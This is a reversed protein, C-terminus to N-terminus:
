CYTHFRHKTAMKSVIGRLCALAYQPDTFFHTLTEKNYHECCYLILLFTGLGGLGLFLQKYFSRSAVREEKHKPADNPKPQEQKKQENTVLGPPTEIVSRVEKKDNSGSSPILDQQAQDSTSTLKHRKDTEQSIQNNPTSSPIIQLNKAKDSAIQQPQQPIQNPISTATPDTIKIIEPANAIADVTSLFPKISGHQKPVMTKSYVTSYFNFASVNHSALAILIIQLNSIGGMPIDSYYTFTSCRKLIKSLDLDQFDKYSPLIKFAEINKAIRGVAGGASNGGEQDNWEKIIKIDKKFHEHNTHDALQQRQKQILYSNGTKEAYAVQIEKVSSQKKLNDGAHLSFSNIFFLAAIYYKYNM